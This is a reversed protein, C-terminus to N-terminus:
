NFTTFGSMEQPFGQTNGDTMENNNLTNKNNVRQVTRGSYVLPPTYFHIRRRIGSWTPFSFFLHNQKKINLVGGQKKIVVKKTWVHAGSWECLTNSERGNVSSTDRCKREELIRTASINTQDIVIGTEIYINCIWGWVWSACQTTTVRVVTSSRQSFSWTGWSAESMPKEFGNIKLFSFDNLLVM